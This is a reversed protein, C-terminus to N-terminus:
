RDGKYEDSKGVAPKVLYAICISVITVAILFGWLDFGLASGIQQIWEVCTNVWLVFCDFASYVM